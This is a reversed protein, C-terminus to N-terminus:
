SRAALGRLGRLGRMVAGAAMAGTLGLVAGAALTTRDAARTGFTPMMPTRPGRAHGPPPSQPGVPASVSQRGIGADNAAWAASVLTLRAILNLWFLLGVVVAVSAFLPNSSAHSALAAGFFKLLTFGVGGVVAGTRLRQWPVDIDSLVRMLLLMLASDAVASVLLGAVTVVWASGSLGVHSAVWGAAAGVASTLIATLAVGLGLTVLVGLDRLKGTVVNGVSGEVGFVARIGERLAGLWGLGSLVLAVFAVIGTVTLAGPRPAKVPIIGQPHAADQVFGPLTQSLQATVAQLLDPRSRLVFGFVTFALAVAPFISFFAFFSVGGALVNGHADGYRKWARYARTAKVRAILPRM